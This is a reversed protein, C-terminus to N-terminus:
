HLKSLIWCAITPCPGVKGDMEFRLILGQGVLGCQIDMRM